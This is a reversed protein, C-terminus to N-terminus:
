PVDISAFHAHGKRSVFPYNTPDAKRRVALLQKRATLTADDYQPVNRGAFLDPPQLGGLPDPRRNENELSLYDRDPVTIANNGKPTRFGALFKAFHSRARRAKGQAQRGM